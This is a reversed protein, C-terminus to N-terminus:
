PAVTPRERPRLGHGSRENASVESANLTQEDGEGGLASMAGSTLRRLVAADPTIGQDALLGNFHGVCGM